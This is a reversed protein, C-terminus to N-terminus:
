WFNKKAPDTVNQKVLDYKCFPTDSKGYTNWDLPSAKFIISLLVSTNKTLGSVKHDLWFLFDCLDDFYLINGIIYGGTMTKGFRSQNHCFKWCTYLPWVSIFHGYVQGTADLLAPFAVWSICNRAHEEKMRRMCSWKSFMVTQVIWKSLYFSSFFNFHTLGRWGFFDDLLDCGCARPM